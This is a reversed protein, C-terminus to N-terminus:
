AQFVITRSAWKRVEIVIWIARWTNNMPAPPPNRGAGVYGGGPLAGLVQSAKEAKRQEVARQRSSQKGNRFAESAQQRRWPTIPDRILQVIRKHALEAERETKAVEEMGNCTEGLEEEAM